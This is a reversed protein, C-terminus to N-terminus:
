FMENCILTKIITPNNAGQRVRLSSPWERNATCLQKNLVNVPVRRIHLGGGGDMFQLCAMSRHFPVKKDHSRYM